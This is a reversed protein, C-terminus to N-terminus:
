SKWKVRRWQNIGPEFINDLENEGKYFSHDANYGFVFCRVKQVLGASRRLSGTEVEYLKLYKVVEVAKIKNAFPNIHIRIRALGFPDVARQVM